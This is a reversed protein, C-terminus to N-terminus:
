TPQPCKPESQMNLVTEAILNASDFFGLRGTNVILHFHLPNRSQGGFNRSLYGSKARDGKQVFEFAEKRSLQFYEEIHRIRFELPAILRVHLVHKLPATVVHSGRGVLIANGKLALKFITENTKQVLTRASPHLGFVEESFDTMRNVKDEPLYREMSEPLLQDELVKKVLNRDFIAWPYSSSHGEKVEIIEMVLQAVTISGAGTERSITIAHLPPKEETHFRRSEQAFMYSNFKELLEPNM